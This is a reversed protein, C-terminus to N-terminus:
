PMRKGAINELPVPGFVHSDSSNSRNDGLIFYHGPPIQGPGVRYEFSSAHPEHLLVGDIFVAGDGLEITEGPMGVIRGLYWLENSDPTLYVVIDFRNFTSSQVIRIQQGDFITPEMAAGRYDFTKELPSSGSLEDVLIFLATILLWAGLVFVFARVLASRTVVIWPRDTAHARKM